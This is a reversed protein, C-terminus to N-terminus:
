MEVYLSHCFPSGLLISGIFILASILTKMSCSYHIASCVIKMKGVLVAKFAEDVSM